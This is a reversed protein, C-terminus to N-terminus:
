SQDVDDKIFQRFPEEIFQSPRWGKVLKDLFFADLTSLALGTATGIGGAFAMDLVVGGGTFLLFRISKTPLKEAWTKSSIANLYESVLEADPNRGALWERFRAARDLLKFLENISREGSNIVERVSRANPM